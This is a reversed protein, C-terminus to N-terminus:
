TGDDPQYELRLVHDAPVCYVTEAEPVLLFYADNAVTIVRVSDTVYTGSEGQEGPLGLPRAAVLRATGTQDGSALLSEADDHGMQAAGILLVSAAMVGLALAMGSAVLKLDPWERPIVRWLLIPAPVAGMAFLGLYLKDGTIMLGYTGAMFACLSAVTSGGYFLRRRFRLSDALRVSAPSPWALFEETVVIFLALLSAMALYLWMEMRASIYDAPELDLARLPIGLREYFAKTYYWGVLFATGTVLVGLGALGALIHGLGPWGPAGPGAPSRGETPGPQGDPKTQDHDNTDPM